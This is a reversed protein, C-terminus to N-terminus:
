ASFLAKFYNLSRLGGGLCRWIRGIRGRVCHYFNRWYNRYGCRSGFWCYFDIILQQQDCMATRCLIEDFKTWLTSGDQRCVSLYVSLCVSLCICLKEASTVALAYIVSHFVSSYCLLWSAWICCHDLKKITSEKASAPLSYPIPYQTTSCM